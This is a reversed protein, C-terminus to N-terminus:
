DEERKLNVTFVPLPSHNVLEESVSGSFFRSIGDKGHTGLAIVDAEIDKAFHRIGAERVYDNYVALPYEKGFKQCFLDVKENIERTTEFSEITNVKLLHINAEFLKAFELVKIFVRESEESFDSAFVILRPRHSIRNKLTLVPVSVARVVKEANSGVFFESLGSAGHTGIIVLDIGNKQIAQELSLTVSGTDQLPHVMIDSFREANVVKNLEQKNNEMLTDIFGLDVPAGSPMTAWDGSLSYASTVVPVEVVNLVFLELQKEKALIRAFDLANYACDSFDFPVLLKKM